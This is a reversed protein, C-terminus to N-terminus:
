KNRFNISDKVEGCHLMGDKYKPHKIGLYPNVVESNNSLWFAEETDNFAMPCSMHYLTAGNYKVTLALNYLNESLTYFSRRKGELTTETAIANGEAIISESLTKATLVITSDAKVQDFSLKETAVVVQLAHKSANTSDWEVLNKQLQYYENLVNNFSQNFANSSGNVVLPQQKDEVKGEDKYIFLFYVAILAILAAAIFFSSKKM